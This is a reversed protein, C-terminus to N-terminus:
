LEEIDVGYGMEQILEDMLNFLKISMNEAEHFKKLIYEKDETELSKKNNAKGLAEETYDHFREHIAEMQTFAKYKGISKTKADNYWSVFDCNNHDFTAIGNEEQSHVAASYTKSKYDIHEIKHTLLFLSLFSRISNQYTNDLSGNLYNLLKEFEGVSNHTNSSITNMKDSNNKIKGTQHQLEKISKSIESTAESTREALARVEDAVVAFGRGHVGARAAEIAANLALLNTQDAIEEILTTVNSIAAVNQNLKQITDNNNSILDNLMFVEKSTDALADSSSQSLSLNEKSETSVSKIDEAIGKIDMMVNLLSSQIGGNIKNFKSTFEGMTQYKVNAKLGHIAQEMAVSTLAFEGHLGSPFMARHMDGSTVAKVTYRTERLTVEAQDLMDNIAWALENLKPDNQTINTDVRGTLEGNAANKVVKILADIVQNQNNKKAGFM